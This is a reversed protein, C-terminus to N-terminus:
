NRASVRAAGCVAVAACKGGNKRSVERSDLQEPSRSRRVIKKWSKKKKRVSNKQIREPANSFLMEIEFYIVM